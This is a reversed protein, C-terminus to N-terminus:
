KEMIFKYAIEEGNAGEVHFQEFFQQTVADVEERTNGTIYYRALYPNPGYNDIKEGEQYFAVYEKVHPNKALKFISDQNKIEKDQMGVFYLGACNKEFFPSHKVLMDALANQDYVYNLLMEEINFGSCITVMEHEYGFLRGAIECVEVGHENYFFQMSLAGERQGTKEAFKQLVETAEDIIDRIEKAPYAIRNLLPIKEGVQPNKERNAISIVHVKGDILWTMMNYEKGHSYEEVQIAEDMSARCIVDDYRKRIEDISNVVFIGKSGYGNIPKIVLPFSFGELDQEKFNSTLICNKPVRVGIETLLKKAENKERYYKLMEPKVYWKLNAKDAIKSIQEFLLDSFSGMIGNINEKKCVEVIEDVLRVDINYAKDAFQKAPGDKYGDCVVTYYGRSKALKVLAVFEGLSGLILLREKMIVKIKRRWKMRKRSIIPKGLWM